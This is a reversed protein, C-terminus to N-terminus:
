GTRRSSLCGSLWAGLSHFECGAGMFSDMSWLPKWRVASSRRKAKPGSGISAMEMADDQSGKTSTSSRHKNRFSGLGDMVVGRVLTSLPTMSSGRRPVPQHSPFFSDTCSKSPSSPSNRKHTKNPKAEKRVPADDDEEGEERHVSARKSGEGHLETKLFSLSADPYPAHHLEWCYRCADLMYEGEITEYVPSAASFRRPSLSSRRRTATPVALRGPSEEADAATVQISVSSDQGGLQRSLRRVSSRRPSPRGFSSRMPSRSMQSDQEQKDEDVVLDRTQYFEEWSEM